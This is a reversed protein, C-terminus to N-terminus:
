RIKHAHAHFVGVGIYQHANADDQSCSGWEELVIKKKKKPMPPPIDVVSPAEPVLVEDDLEDLKDIFSQM